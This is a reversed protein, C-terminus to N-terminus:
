EEPTVPPTFFDLPANEWDSAGRKRRQAVFRGDETFTVRGQFKKNEYVDDGVLAEEVQKAFEVLTKPHGFSPRFPKKDAM